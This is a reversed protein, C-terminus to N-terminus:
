NRPVYHSVVDTRGHGLESSVQTKDIEQSRAQAYGHRQSHAHAKNDKTAGVKHLQDRQYNYAQKLTKNKPIISKQNNRRIYEQVQEVVRQQEQTKIPVTRSRGGKAAEVVLGKQGQADIQTKNSMLSEKSRLGFEQRIDHALGLWEAKNYLAERVQAQKEIDAKVPKRRQGARSVGYAQNERAVINQKGVAKATKRAATLYGCITGNDKGESKLDNIVATIHKSKLDQVRELGFKKEVRNLLREMNGSNKDNTLTSKNWNKNQKSLAQKALSQRGQKSM